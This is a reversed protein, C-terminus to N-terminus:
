VSDLIKERAASSLFASRTLGAREAAADIAELLGADISLNARVSRGSERVLPVIAIMSGEALQERVEEDARLEELSRSKPPVDQGVWEALALAANKLAEEPTAGMAACGPADPFVVGFAGAEGDVLAVFHSM